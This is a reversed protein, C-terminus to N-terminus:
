TFNRKKIAQKVLSLGNLADRMIDENDSDINEISRNFYDISETFNKKYYYSWGLGRLVDQLVIRESVNCFVMSNNFADIAADHDNKCFSVWGLGRWAEQLANHETQPIFKIANKLDSLADSYKNTQRYTWGRGSLARYNSPDSEIASNFAELAEVYKGKHYYEWGERAWDASNKYKQRLEIYINKLDIHTYKDLNIFINDFEVGSIHYRILYLMFIKHHFEDDVNDPNAQQILDNIASGPFPRLRQLTLQANNKPLKDLLEFGEKIDEITELPNHTIIHYELFVNRYGSIMDSFKIISEDTSKRNYVKNRIRESGSQIGVVTIAMGAEVAAELIKPNNIVQNPFLQAFFPLNVEKKYLDFFDLLYSEEGILFSDMLYIRTFGHEKALRLEAIVKEIERNRRRKFPVGKDRYLKYFQGGACFSCRWMCGRGVMTYYNSLGAYFPDVKRVYNIFVDTKGIINNEIVYHPIKDMHENYFYDETYDPEEMSNFFEQGSLKYALNPIQRINDKLGKDIYEAMKVISQEGEGICVYDFRDMYFGPNLSAGFGGALKIALTSKQIQDIIPSLYKEYLTRTTIGVIDVNLDLLLDGLLEAENHTWMNVDMNYGMLMFESHSQKSQLNEYGTPQNLFDDLCKQIPLKFHVVVVNHGHCFLANSLTRVGLAWNDYLSILAIKAINVEM